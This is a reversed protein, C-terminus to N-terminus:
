HLNECCQGKGVKCSLLHVQCHNLYPKKQLVMNEEKAKKDGLLNQGEFSRQVTEREKKRREKNINKEKRKKDRKKHEEKKKTEKM